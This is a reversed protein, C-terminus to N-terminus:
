AGEETRRFSLVVQFGAGPTASFRAQGGMRAMLTRILYLGV